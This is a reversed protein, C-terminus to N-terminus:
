CAAFPDAVMFVTPGARRVGGPVTLYAMLVYKGIQITDPLSFVHQARLLTATAGVLITGGWVVMTGDPQKVDFTVATVTTMVLGSTAQSIDFEIAETPLGGKYITITSM